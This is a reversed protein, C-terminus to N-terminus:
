LQDQSAIRRADAPLNFKFIRDPIDEGFTLAVVTSVLTKTRRTKWFAVSRKLVHRPGGLDELLAEYRETIPKKLPRGKPNGSQGAKWRFPKTKEPNGRM